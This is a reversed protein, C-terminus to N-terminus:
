RRSFRHLVWGFVLAVLLYALKRTAASEFVRAVDIMFFLGYLAASRSL